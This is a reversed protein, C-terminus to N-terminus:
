YQCGSTNGQLGTIVRLFRGSFWYVLTKLISCSNSYACIYYVWKYCVCIYRVYSNFFQLMCHYLVCLQWLFLELSLTTVLVYNVTVVAASVNTISVTACNYSLYNDFFYHYCSYLSISLNDYALTIAVIVCMTTVPM